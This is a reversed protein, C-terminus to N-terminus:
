GKRQVTQGFDFVFRPFLISFMFQFFLRFVFCISSIVRFVFYLEFVPSVIHYDYNVRLMFALSVETM